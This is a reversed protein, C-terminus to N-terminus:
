GRLSSCRTSLGHASSRSRSRRTRPRAAVPRWFGSPTLPGSSISHSKGVRTNRCICPCPFPSVPTSLWIASSLKSPTPAQIRPRLMNPGTRPGQGSSLQFPQHPSSGGYWVGTKTNVWGGRASSRIAPPVSNRNTVSPMSAASACARAAATPRSTRTTAHRPLSGGTGECRGSRRAGGPWGGPGARPPRADGRRCRCATEPTRMRSAHSPHAHWGRREAGDPGIRRTHGRARGSLGPGRRQDPVLGIPPSPTLRSVVGVSNGRREGREQDQQRDKALCLGYRLSAPDPIERGRRRGRVSDLALRKALAEAGEPVDFPLADQEFRAVRVAAGLPKLLQRRLENAELDVHDDGPRGRGDPGDLLGGPGNGDHHGEGTVGDPSPNAAPSARGPPLM